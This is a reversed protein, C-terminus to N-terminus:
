THMACRHFYSPLEPTLNRRREHLIWDDLNTVLAKVQSVFVHLILFRKLQHPTTHPHITPTHSIFSSLPDHSCLFFRETLLSPLLICRILPCLPLNDLPLFLSWNILAQTWPSPSHFFWLVAFYLSLYTHFRCLLFGDNQIKYALRFENFFTWLVLHPILAAKRLLYAWVPSPDSPPHFTDCLHLQVTPQFPSTFFHVFIGSSDSYFGGCFIFVPERAMSLRSAEKDYYDKEKSSYKNQGATIQKFINVVM